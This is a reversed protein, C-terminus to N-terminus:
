LAFLGGIKRHLLGNFHFQDDIESGCLRKAEGERQRQEAAGILHDFYRYAAVEAQPTRRSFAASELLALGVRHGSWGLLL